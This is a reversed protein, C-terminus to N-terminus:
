KKKSVKINGCDTCIQSYIARPGGCTCVATQSTVIEIHERNYPGKNPPIENPFYDLFSISTYGESELFKKIRAALVTKGTMQKGSITITIM